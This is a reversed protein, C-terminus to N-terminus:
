RKLTFGRSYFEHPSERENNHSDLSSLHKSLIIRCMFNMRCAVCVQKAIDEATEPEPEKSRDSQTKHEESNSILQKEEKEKTVGNVREGSLKNESSKEREENEAFGIYLYFCTFNIIAHPDNPSNKWYWFGIVSSYGCDNICHYPSWVTWALFSNPFAVSDTDLVLPAPGPQEHM